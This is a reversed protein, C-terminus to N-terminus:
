LSYKEIESILIKPDIPKVIYTNCGAELAIQKDTDFAYATVAIIPINKDKERILKTATIGDMEPMKMDMLIIDFKQKNFLEVAEAGTKARVLNHKKGIIAKVLMYNFDIDEAVLINLMKDSMANSEEINDKQDIKINIKEFNEILSDNNLEKIIINDISEGESKIYEYLASFANEEGSESRIDNLSYVGISRWKKPEKVPMRFPLFITFESGQGIKSNLSIFGGMQEALSKTIPLGLGFGTQSDNLKTFRQFIEDHRNEPIGVGTDSVSCAVMLKTNEKKDILPYVKGPENECIREAEEISLTRIVRNQQSVEAINYYLAITGYSTNKLANSILNTYIQTLRNRDTVFLTERIFSNEGKKKIVPHDPLKYIVKVNEGARLKTSEVLELCIKDINVTTNKLDTRGSEIKSLDLIDNILNLLLDNNTKVIDFYVDKEEKTETTAILESFGIIANLPTRIEHSVNALFASKLRDSEQAKEKAKSLIINKEKLELENMKLDLESRRLITNDMVVLLYGTEPEKKRETGYDEASGQRQNDLNVYGETDLLSVIRINIYKTHPTKPANMYDRYIKKEKLDYGIDISYGSHQILTKLQPNIDLLNTKDIEKKSQLGFISLLADNSELYDGNSNYIVVGIPLAQYIKRLNEENKIIQREKERIKLAAKKYGDIDIHIGNVVCKKTQPDDNVDIVKSLIWKYKGSKTKIRFEIGIKYEDLTNKDWKYYYNRIDDPHIMQKFRSASTSMEDASYGTIAHYNGSWAIVNETVDYVWYGLSGSKLIKETKEQESILRDTAKVTSTIDQFIGKIFKLNNSKDRCAFLIIDCFVPSGDAKRLIHKGRIIDKKNNESLVAIITQNWGPYSTDTFIFEDVDRGAMNDPSIGLMGAIKSNVYIIKRDPTFYAIAMDHRRKEKVDRQFEDLIERYLPSKDSLASLKDYLDIATKNEPSSLPM